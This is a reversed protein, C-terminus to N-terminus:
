TRPKSGSSRTPTWKARSLRASRSRRWAGCIRQHADEQHAATTFEGRLSKLAQTRANVDVTRVLVDQVALYAANIRKSKDQHALFQAFTAAREFDSPPMDKAILEAEYEDWKPARPVFSPVAYLCVVLVANM